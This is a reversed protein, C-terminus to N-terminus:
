WKFIAKLISNDVFNVERLAKQIVYLDKKRAKFYCLQSDDIYSLILSIARKNKKIQKITLTVKVLDRDKDVEPPEICSILDEEDLWAM